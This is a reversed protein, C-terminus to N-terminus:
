GRMMLYRGAESSRAISGAPSIHDTTVSDGLFLLVRANEIPKIPNLETKMDDFFPPNKIYNSKSDWTYFLSEESNLSNWKENGLQIRSYVERFMVPKVYKQEVEQIEERSPWIDNLYVPKGDKNHGIPENSFDIDVTGALAYAVVM